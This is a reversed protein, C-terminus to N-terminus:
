EIYITTDDRAGKMRESRSDRKRKTKTERVYTLVTAALDAVRDRYLLQLFRSRGEKECVRRDREDVSTNM